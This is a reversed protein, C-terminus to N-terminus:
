IEGNWLMMELKIKSQRFLRLIYEITSEMSTLQRLNGRAYVEYLHTEFLEEFRDLVVKVNVQKMESLWNKMCFFICKNKSHVPEKRGEPCNRCYEVIAYEKFDDWSILM